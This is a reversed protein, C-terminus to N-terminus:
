AAYTEKSSYVKFGYNNLKKKNIKITTKQNGDQAFGRYLEDEM